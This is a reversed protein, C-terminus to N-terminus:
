RDRRAHRAVVGARLPEPRQGEGRCGASLRAEAPVRELLLESIQPIDLRLDAGRVEGLLRQRVDREAHDILLPLVVEVVEILQAFADVVAGPSLLVRENLVLLVGVLHEDAQNLVQLRRERLPPELQLDLDPRRTTLPRRTAADGPGGAPQRSRAAALRRHHRGFRGGVTKDRTALWRRRGHLAATASSDGLRRKRRTGVGAHAAVIGTRAAAPLLELFAVSGPRSAFPTRLHIMYPRLM